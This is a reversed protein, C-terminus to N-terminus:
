AGEGGERGTVIALSSRPAPRGCVRHESAEARANHVAKDSLAYQEDM